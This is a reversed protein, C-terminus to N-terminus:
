KEHNSEPQCATPSIAIVLGAGFIGSINAVADFNPAEALAQEAARRVTMGAALADLFAPGGAPLRHVHVDLHPRVIVASEAEWREIPQVPMTGVNMSWITVVPFSSRVIRVSPHLHLTCGAFDDAVAKDLTSPEIPVANRAHFAHNRAMEVRAVDALYPLDGAPSFTETFPPFLDGYHLLVPSRPPHRIVFERVMAFFFDDGVIRRIAPFRSSVVDALKVAVNNRYVSFRMAPKATSHSMVIDPIDAAPNLIAAAFPTHWMSPITASGTM